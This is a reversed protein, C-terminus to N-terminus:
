LWYPTESQCAEKNFHLDVNWHGRIEGPTKRSTRNVNM